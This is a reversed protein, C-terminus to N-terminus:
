VQGTTAVKAMIVMTVLDPSLDRDVMVVPWRGLSTVMM